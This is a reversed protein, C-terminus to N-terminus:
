TQKDRLKSLRDRATKIDIKQSTKDGSAVVIILLGGMFGYYLRYGYKRERLEFIGRGLPYSHPMKLNNGLKELLKVEKSLSKFQEQTLKDM